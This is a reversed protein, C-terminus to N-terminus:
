RFCTTSVILLMMKEVKLRLFHTRRVKTSLLVFMSTSEYKRCQKFVDRHANYFYPKHDADYSHATVPFIPLIQGYEKDQGYLM